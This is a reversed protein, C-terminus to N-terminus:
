TNQAIEFDFINSGFIGDNFYLVINKSWLGMSVFIINEGYEFQNSISKFLKSKVDMIGFTSNIYRYVAFLDM